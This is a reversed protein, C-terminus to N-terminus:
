SRAALGDLFLAVADDAISEASRGSMPRYWEATWNLAGLVLMRAVFLDVDPRLVGAEVADAILTNWYAGYRRQDAVHGKLVDPPVQGVIRAQASAYDSIELVSLTHARIATALRDLATAGPPLAALAARVQQWSTEIGLRLIEAVLEERSDFHYYLSGAQMGALEAIDALRANAYGQERFVKAAADLIRRRTREAKTQTKAIATM